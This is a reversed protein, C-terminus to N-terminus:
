YDKRRRWFYGSGILIGDEGFSDWKYWGSSQINDTLRDGSNFNEFDIDFEAIAYNPMTMLLLLFIYILHRYTCQFKLSFSTKTKSLM